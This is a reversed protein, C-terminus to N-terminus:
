NLFHVQRDRRKTHLDIRQFGIEKRKMYDSLLDLMPTIHSCILVRPKARTPITEPAEIDDEQQKLKAILKDLFNLKASNSIM